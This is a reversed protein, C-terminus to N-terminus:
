GGGKGFAAIWGAPDDGLNRGSIGRLAKLIETKVMPDADDKMRGLAAALSPLAAKDGLAAAAEAAFKVISPDASDIRRRVHPAARTDGLSGLARLMACVVLPNEEKGLAGALADLSEASKLAQLARAGMFRVNPRPDSLLEKLPLVADRGFEAMVDICRQKITQRVWESKLVEVLFRLSAKGLLRLGDQAASIDLANESKLKQILKVAAASEGPRGMAKLAVTAEGWKTRDESDFEQALRVIKGIRALEARAAAGENGARVAKPLLEIIRDYVFGKEKENLRTLAGAGEEWAAPKDGEFMVLYKPLLAARERSLRQHAELEEHWQGIWDGQDAEPREEPSGSCGAILIQAALIWPFAWAPFRRKTVMQAM